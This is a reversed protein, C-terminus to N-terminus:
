QPSSPPAPRPLVLLDGEKLGQRVEVGNAAVAGIQVPVRRRDRSNGDAVTVFHSPGAAEVAEPPVVIAAPAVYTSIVVNASMGIRVTEAEAPPLPDLDIIADFAADTAGPATAAAEGSVRRVRGHIVVGPFGAGTVTVPEGDHVRNADIEDLRIAVGLAGAVAISAVFQGRNLREGVHLDTAGAEKVTTPRVITGATQARISTNRMQAIVDAFKAQASELELAASRRGAGAGRALTADLDEQAAKLSLTETQQQQQLAEFEGRAILGRELLTRSEALGHETKRLAMQALVVGRRARSVELGNAWDAMEQEAQQAKLLGAQADRARQRLDTPDLRLLEQGAEVRRGYEFLVASVVGDFPAVVDLSNGPVIVGVVSLSTEFRQRTVALTAPPPESRRGSALRAVIGAAAAAILVGIGLALIRRGRLSLRQSRHGM